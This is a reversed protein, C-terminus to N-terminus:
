YKNSVRLSFGRPEANKPNKVGNDCFAGGGFNRWRPLTTATSHFGSDALCVDVTIRAVAVAAVVAIEVVSVAVVEMDAVIVVEVAATVKDAEGSDLVECFWFILIAANSKTNGWLETFCQYGRILM